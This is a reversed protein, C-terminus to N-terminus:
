RFRAVARSQSALAEIFPEDAPREAPQVELRATFRDALQRALQFRVDVPLDFRRVLFSELLQIEEPTLRSVPFRPAAAEPAAPPDWAHAAIELPKEHVVVTGAALDGLRKNRQSLLVSIIGLGYVFPIQDVIRVLNRLIGQYATIPRGSDQIVRLGAIRKGPTQGNWLIEFAAFYGYHIVFLVLGLAAQGWPVAGPLWEGTGWLALGGGLIVIALAAYSILTDVAVALFRSGVGALAFELTTQEPTEISLKELGDSYTPSSTV